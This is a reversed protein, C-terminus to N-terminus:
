GGYIQTASPPSQSSAANEVVSPRTQNPPTAFSDRATEPSRSARLAFTKKETLSLPYSFNRVGSKRSLLTTPLPLQTDSCISASAPSYHASMTKSVMRQCTEMRYVRFSHILIHVHRKSLFIQAIRSTIRTFSIRRLL